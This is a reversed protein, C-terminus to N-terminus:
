FFFFLRHVKLGELDFHAYKLYINFLYRIYSSKSPMKLANIVLFPNMEM